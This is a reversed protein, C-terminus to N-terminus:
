LWQAALAMAGVLAAACHKKPIEPTEIDFVGHNLRQRGM